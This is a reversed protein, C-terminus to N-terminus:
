KQVFFSSVVDPDYLISNCRLAKIIPRRAFVSKSRAGEPEARISIHCATRPRAYPVARRRAHQANTPTPRTQPRVHTRRATKGHLAHGTPRQQIGHLHKQGVRGVRNHLKDQRSMNTILIATEGQAHTRAHMNM